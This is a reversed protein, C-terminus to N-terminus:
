GHHASREARRLLKASVRAVGTGAFTESRISENAGMKRAIPNM